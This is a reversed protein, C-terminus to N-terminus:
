EEMRRRLLALKSKSDEDLGMEGSGQGAEIYSLMEPDCEEGRSGPMGHYHRMPLELYMSEEVYPLLDVGDVEYPVEWEDGEVVMSEGRGVVLFESFALPFWFLRACRDCEMQVRGRAEVQIAYRSSEFTATISVCLEVDSVSFRALQTFDERRLTHEWRQAASEVESLRLWIQRQERQEEM